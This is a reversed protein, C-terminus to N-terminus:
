ITSIFLYTLDLQRQLSRLWTSFRRQVSVDLSLGARRRRHLPPNVALARAIGITAAARASRTRIAALYEAGCVSWSLFEEVRTAASGPPWGM